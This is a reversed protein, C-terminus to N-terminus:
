CIGSTPLLPPHPFLTLNVSTIVPLSYATSKYKGKGLSKM